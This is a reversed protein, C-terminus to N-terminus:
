IMKKDNDIDANNNDNNGHEDNKFTNLTIMTM